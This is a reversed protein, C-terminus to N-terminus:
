SNQLLALSGFRDRRCEGERVATLVLLLCAIGVFKLTGNRQLVLMTAGVEMITHLERNGEWSLFQLAIMAAVFIVTTAAFAVVPTTYRDRSVSQDM